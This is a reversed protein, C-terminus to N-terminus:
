VPVRIAHAPDAVFHHHIDAILEKAPHNMLGHIKIVLDPGAKEHRTDSVVRAAHLHSEAGDTAVDEFLRGRNDASHRGQEIEIPLEGNHSQDQKRGAEDGDADESLARTPRHLMFLLSHPLHGHRHLFSEGPNANDFRECPFLMLFFREDFARPLLEVVRHSHHLRHFRDPREDLRDGRDADTKRQKVNVRRVEGAPWNRPNIAPIKM